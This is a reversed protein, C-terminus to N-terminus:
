QRSGPAAMLGSSILASYAYGWLQRTFHDGQSQLSKISKQAAPNNQNNGASAWIQRVKSEMEKLDKLVKGINEAASAIDPDKKRWKMLLAFVAATRNIPESIRNAFDRPPLVINRGWENFLGREGPKDQPSGLLAEQMWKWEGEIEKKFLVAEEDTLESKYNREYLVSSVEEKIIQKLQLKTIKM